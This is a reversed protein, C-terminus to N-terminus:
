SHKNNHRIHTFYKKNGESKITNMELLDSLDYSKGHLEVKGDKKKLKILKPKEWSKEKM